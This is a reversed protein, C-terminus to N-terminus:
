CFKCLPNQDYYYNSLYIIVYYYYDLEVECQLIREALVVDCFLKPFTQYCYFGTSISLM